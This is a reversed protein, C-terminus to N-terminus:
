FERRLTAEPIVHIDLIKTFADCHYEIYSLDGDSSALKGM